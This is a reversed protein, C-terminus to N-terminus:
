IGKVPYYKRALHMYDLNESEGYVNILRKSFFLILTKMESLDSKAKEVINEPHNDFYVSSQELVLDIPLINEGSM